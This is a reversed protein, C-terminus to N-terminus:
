WHYKWLWDKRWAPTDKFLKHMSKMVTAIDWDVSKFASHITHLGCSGTNILSPDTDVSKLEAFLKDFFVWNINPSDMSLEVMNRLNLNKTLGMFHEM